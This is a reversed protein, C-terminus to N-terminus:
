RGCTELTVWNYADIRIEIRARANPDRLTRFWRDYIVTRRLEIM